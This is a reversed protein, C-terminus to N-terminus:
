LIFHVFFNLLEIVDRDQLFAARQRGDASSMPGERTALAKNHMLLCMLRKMENM